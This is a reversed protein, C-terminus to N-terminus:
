CGLRCCLRCSSHFTTCTEGIAVRVGWKCFKLRRRQMRCNLGPSLPPPSFYQRNRATGGQSLLLAFPWWIMSGSPLFPMPSGRRCKGHLASSNSSSPAPLVRELESLRHGCCRGHHKTLPALKRCYVQIIGVDLCQEKGFFYKWGRKQCRRHGFPIDIAAVNWGWFRPGSLGGSLWSM